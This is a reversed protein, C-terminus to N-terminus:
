NIQFTPKQDKRDNNDHYIKRSIWIILLIILILMLWGFIGPFFGAGFAFAGLSSQNELITNLAQALSSGQANEITPHDYTGEAVTVVLDQNNLRGLVDTQILITGKENDQLDGLDIALSRDLESYFGQTSKRFEIEEPFLVHIIVDELTGNYLNEYEVEFNITDGEYVNEFDPTIDLALYIIGDGGGTNVVTTTNNTTTTPTTIVVTNTNGTTKFSKTQGYVNGTVIRFYYTTNPSLGTVNKSNYLTQGESVTQTGTAIGLNSNLGYQFFSTSSWNTDNTSIGNLVASTGTIGTAFTTVAELDGDNGNDNDGDDTSFSKVSGCDEDNSDQSEICARFYYTTDDDLGNITKSFDGENDTEGSLYTTEDLDDEDEGYEFYRVVDEGNTEIIDGRLTASDDEINQASLTTVEINDDNNNEGDTSFSKVSGCDEGADNTGCAKFYYTTDEDLNNLQYDFDTGDSNTSSPSAYVTSNLNNSSTGYRFKLSSVTDNGTDEVEGNLVASDDEINTADNTIINPYDNNSDGEYTSFSFISGCATGGENTLACAKYFYTTNENVSVTEAFNGSTYTQYDQNTTQSGNGLNSNTGYVFWTYPNEGQGNVYGNLTAQNGNLSYSNTTVLPAQVEDQAESVQYQVVVTGQTAWGPAITGINLGSSSFVESGNQGNPLTYETYSQNNAYWSASGGIYTLSQSSSLNVTASGFVTPANAASVSGSITHTSSAGLTQGSTIKLKTSTASEAGNNHYYIMVSIVEGADASTSSSWSDISNPNETQNAVLITDFDSPHNNFVTAAFVPTASFGFLAVAMFGYVITKLTNKM